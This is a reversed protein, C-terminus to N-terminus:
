QVGGSLYALSVGQEAVLAVILLLALMSGTVLNLATTTRM